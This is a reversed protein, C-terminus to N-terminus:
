RSATYGGKVVLVKRKTAQLQPNSESYLVVGRIGTQADSGSPQMHCRQLPQKLHTWRTCQNTTNPLSFVPYLPTSFELLDPPYTNPSMEVEFTKVQQTSYVILLVMLLMSVHIVPEIVPIIAKRLVASM